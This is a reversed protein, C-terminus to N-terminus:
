SYRWKMIRLLPHEPVWKLEAFKVGMSHHTGMLWWYISGMLLRFLKCRFFLFLRKKGYFEPGKRRCALKRKRKKFAKYESCSSHTFKDSLLRWFRIICTKLEVIKDSINGSLHKPQEVSFPVFKKVLFMESFPFILAWLLYSKTKFQKEGIRIQLCKIRLM